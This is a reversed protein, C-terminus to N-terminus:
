YLDRNAGTRQSQNQNQLCESESVQGAGEPRLRQNVSNLVLLAM